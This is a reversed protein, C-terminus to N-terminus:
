TVCVSNSKAVVDALCRVFTLFHDSWLWYGEPELQFARLLHKLYITSDFQKHNEIRVRVADGAGDILRLAEAAIFGRPNRSVSKMKLMLLIVTILSKRRPTQKLM